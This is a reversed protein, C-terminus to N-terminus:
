VVARVSTSVYQLLTKAFFAVHVLLAVTPNYVHLYIFLYIRKINIIPEVYHNQDRYPLTTQARIQIQRMYVHGNLPIFADLFPAQTNGIYTKNYTFFYFHTIISNM